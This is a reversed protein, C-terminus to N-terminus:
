VCYTSTFIPRRRMSFSVLAIWGADCPGKDTITVMDMDTFLQFMCHVVYVGHSGVALILSLTM